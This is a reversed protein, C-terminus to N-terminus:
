RIGIEKPQQQKLLLICWITSNCLRQYGIIARVYYCITSSHQQTQQHDIFLFSIRNYAVILFTEVDNSSNTVNDLNGNWYCLFHYSFLVPLYLLWLLEVLKDWWNCLGGEWEEETGNLNYTGCRKMIILLLLLLVYIVVSM